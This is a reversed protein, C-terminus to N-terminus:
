PLNFLPSIMQKSDSPIEGLTQPKMEQKGEQKRGVLISLIKQTFGSHM